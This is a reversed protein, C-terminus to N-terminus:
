DIWEFERDLVSEAISRIDKGVQGVLQGQLVMLYEYNMDLVDAIRQLTEPELALRTNNELQSINPQYYGAKEALADQSM